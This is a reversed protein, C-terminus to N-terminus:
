PTPPPPARVSPRRRCAHACRWDPCGTFRPLVRNSMGSPNCAPVARVSEGLKNVAVIDLADGARLVAFTGGENVTYQYGNAAIPSPVMQDGTGLGERDILRNGSKPKIM